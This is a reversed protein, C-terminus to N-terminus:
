TAEPEYNPDKMQTALLVIVVMLGITLLLSPTFSGDPSQMAGM